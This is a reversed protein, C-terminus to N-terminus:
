WDLNLVALEKRFYHLNWLQITQSHDAVVLAAGDPSFCLARISQPDPSSLHALSQETSPDILLVKQDTITVALMRGNSAFALVGSLASPPQRPITMVTRWSGTEHLRFESRAGVALWRGDASFAMNSGGADGPLDAAHRNTTLDWIRIGGNEATSTTALWRGDPSLSLAGVAAHNFTAAPQEPRDLRVVVARGVSPDSTALLRGDSSLSAQRTTGGLQVLLQPPGPRSAGRDSRPWLRVAGSNLTIIGRGDPHFRVSDTPKDTVSDIQRGTSLNWVRAGYGGAAAVHRGDPSVDVSSTRLTEDRKEATPVEHLYRCADGPTIEWIGVRKGDMFALARDDPRIRIGFGPASVLLRRTRPNWLRTTGDGGSVLLLDGEANFALNMVDDSSSHLLAHRQYTATNWLHVHHDNSGVALLSGGPAWSLARTAGPHTLRATVEGTDVDRVEVVCDRASSIALHRGAPDFALYELPPVGEIRKPETGSDLDYIGVAHNPLSVAVRRSSPDFIAGGALWAGPVNLRPAGGRSDWVVCQYRGRSQAYNAALWRGDPSFVLVLPEGGRVPCRMRLLESDDAVRRVSIDGKGEHRAYRELAPDFDIPGATFLNGEWEHVVRLDTLTLCAIVEDRLDPSPRIRAAEALLNLSAGRRGAEPSGRLVAAQAVYSQRLRELAEREALRSQDREHRLRLAVIPTGTVIVLLLVAVAAALTAVVPKRRCWRWAREVTGTRRALIPEGALFRDLDAALAEATPYRQRPEKQLCKMCITELDRPVQPQVRTVSVPDQHRVQELTDLATTGLFPPRATLTEYLVAGLAYVDTAPAIARIQGSAQEPAMYSPTGLIAGTRTLGSEEGLWRALGFDTIKPTGLEWNRTGPPRDGPQPSSVPSQSSQLLINAPKLDCHVIGRQHAAHIARALTALLRAADLPPAPASAVQRDLSGGDVLEMSFFPRGDHEGIEFIQVFNPHQLKAITEAEFRFRALHEQDTHSASLIMKLAILRNLSCQRAKYVVGMGGRGLESLIQYDGIVRPEDGIRGEPQDEDARHDPRTGVVLPGDIRLAREVELQVRLAAGYQPFRSLYEELSPTGGAQERLILEQYILNLPGDDDATLEPHQQLYDEVSPREGRRWRSRQEALLLELIARPDALDGLPAPNPRDADPPTM